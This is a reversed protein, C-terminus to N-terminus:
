FVTGLQIVGFIILIPAVIKSTRRFRNKVSENTDKNSLIRVKGSGILYIIVGGIISIIGDILEYM